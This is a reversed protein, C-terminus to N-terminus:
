IEDRSFTLRGSMSASLPFTGTSLLDVLSEFVVLQALSRERFDIDSIRTTGTLTGLGLCMCVSIKIQQQKLITQEMVAVWQHYEPRKRWEKSFRQHKESIVKFTMGELVPEAKLKPDCYFDGLRLLRSDRTSWNPPDRLYQETPRSITRRSHEKEEQENRDSAM